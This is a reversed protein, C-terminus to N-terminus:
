TYRDILTSRNILCNRGPLKVEQTKWPSEEVPKMSTHCTQSCQLDSCEDLDAYPETFEEVEVLNPLQTGRLILFSDLTDVTESEMRKTYPQQKSKTQKTRDNNFCLSISPITRQYGSPVANSKWTPVGPAQSAPTTTHYDIFSLPLDDGEYAYFPKDKVFEEEEEVTMDMTFSYPHCWENVLIQQGQIMASVSEALPDWPLVLELESNYQYECLDLVEIVEKHNPPVLSEFMLKPVVLMLGLVDDFNASKELLKIEMNVILNPNVLSLNWHPSVPIPSLSSLSFPLQPYLDPSHPSLIPSELVARQIYDTAEECGKNNKKLFDLQQQVEVLPSLTELNSVCSDCVKSSCLNSLDASLLTDPSGDEDVDENQLNLSDTVRQVSSFDGTKEIAISELNEPVLLEEYSEDDFFAIENFQIEEFMEHCCPDMPEEIDTKYDFDLRQLLKETIPKGDKMLFPDHVIKPKLQKFLSDPRPVRKGYTELNDPLIVNELCMSDFEATMDPWHENFWLGLDEEELSSNMRDAVLFVEECAEDLVAQVSAPLDTNMFEEKDQWDAWPFSDEFPEQDMSQSTLTLSMLEAAIESADSEAKVVQVAERFEETWDRSVTEDVGQNGNVSSVTGELHEPESLLM